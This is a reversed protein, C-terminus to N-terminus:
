KIFALLTKKLDEQNTLDFNCYITKGAYDSIYEKRYCDVDESLFRLLFDASGNDNRVKPKKLGRSSFYCKQGYLRKNEVNKSMYKSMYVGVNEIKDIKSFFTFGNGWIKELKNKLDSIFPLNYFVIHYHVAGRKQFEIVTTYKLYSKKYKMKYNFKQIFKTFEYNAKEIDTINEAFTLTLFIPIFAKGSKDFWNWANANILRKLSGKARQLSQKTRKGNKRKTGNSRSISQPLSGYWLEKEYKFIEIFNGTIITKSNTFM